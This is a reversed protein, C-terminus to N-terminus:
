GTGIEIESEKACRKESIRQVQSGTAKGPRIGIETAAAIAIAARIEKTKRIGSETEITDEGWTTIASTVGSGEVPQRARWSERNEGV